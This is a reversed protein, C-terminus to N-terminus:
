SDKEHQKEKFHESKIIAYTELGLKRFVLIAVLIALIDLALSVAGAITSAGSVGSILTGIVPTLLATQCTPCGSGLVALGAVIASSQLGSSSDDSKNEKSINKARKESRKYKAVFVVLAILISQCLTLIFNLIFDRFDRGVGFIQLFAEGIIKFAGGVDGDCLCGWIVKFSTFGTVALLNIITGFIIFTIIFAIWFTKKRTALLLGRGALAYEDLFKAFSFKKEKAM